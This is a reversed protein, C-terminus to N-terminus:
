YDRSRDSYRKSSSRSTSSNRSSSSSTSRRRPSSSRSRSRRQRRSHRDHRSSSSSRSRERHSSSERQRRHDSDDAQEDMRRKSIKKFLSSEKYEYGAKKHHSKKDKDDSVEQPKAGLGLLADRQKIPTMVPPTINKRNRGIGEGQNWGLGRLLAAGFEEVPMNEYDEMTTEDPRNRVDNRFSETENAPIVLAPGTQDDNDDETSEKIIAEIAQQELSKFSDKGDVNTVSTEIAQSSSMTTTATATTTTTTIDQQERATLTTRTPVQLGFSSVTQSIVEPEQSTPTQDQARVPMYLERKQKALARWDANALPAISLPKAEKKPNVEKAKNNEFGHVLEVQETDEDDSDDDLAVRRSNSFYQNKPKSGLPLKKTNGNM